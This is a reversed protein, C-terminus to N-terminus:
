MRMMICDWNEGNITYEEVIGTRAFGAKEYCRIAPENNAFVGITINDAHLENRAYERATEILQRGYGKGRISSDLVVFGFRLESRDKDLFRMMMHGVCTDGDYAMMPYAEMSQMIDDYCQKMFTASLPYEGLRGASWKYFTDEDKIWGVVREFDCAQMKRLDLM